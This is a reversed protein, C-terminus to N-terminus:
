LLKDLDVNGISAFWQLLLKCTRKYNVQGFWSKLCRLDHRFSRWFVSIIAQGFWSGRCPHILPSTYQLYAYLLKDLYINEPVVIWALAANFFRKYYSTWILGKPTGAREHRLRQSFRIFCLTQPLSEPEGPGGKVTKPRFYRQFLNIIAQGFWCKRYVRIM